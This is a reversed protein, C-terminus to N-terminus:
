IYGKAKLSEVDAGDPLTDGENYYGGKGDAIVGGVKVTPRAPKKGDTM